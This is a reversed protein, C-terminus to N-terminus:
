QRDAIDLYAQKLVTLSAEYNAVGYKYTVIQLDTIGNRIWENYHAKLTRLKTEQHDIQTEIFALAQDTTLHKGFYMRLLFDSKISEDALETQMYAAFEAKGAPTISYINKNPKGEQFVVEKTIMGDKELKRLTPYIMGYTGDFFYALRTEFIDKIEYGTRPQDNLLGLVVDKGQM